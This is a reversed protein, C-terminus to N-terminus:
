NITSELRAQGPAQHSSSFVVSLLHLKTELEAEVEPIHLKRM